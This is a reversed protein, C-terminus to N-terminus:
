RTALLRDVAHWLDEHLTVPNLNPPIGARLTARGKGTMVLHRQCGAAAAAELDRLGDGIMPTAAPDAAFRALAEHLMGPGPKRRATARDAADPAVFLADLHAGDAALDAQLKRHIRELMTEDIIGRGVVSQNTCVAVKVGARNLRAVAPGARPIPLLEEPSRVSMPLDENLVGDRDLLVLQM